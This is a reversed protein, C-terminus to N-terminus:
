LRQWCFVPIYIAAVVQTRPPQSYNRASDQGRKDRTQKVRGRVRDVGSSEDVAAGGILQRVHADM